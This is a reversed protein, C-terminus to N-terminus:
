RRWTAQRDLHRSNTLNTTERTALDVIYIDTQGANEWTMLFRTGDPAWAPATAKGTVLQEEGTGDTNMLWIGGGLLSDRSFLIQTGDPSWAPEGDIASGATLREVREDDLHVICINQQGDSTCGFAIRSDDPSWSPSHASEGGTTLVRLALTVAYNMTYLQRDLRSHSVIRLGDPSWAPEKLFAVEPLFWARPVQEEVFGTAAIHYIGLPVPGPIGGAPRPDVRSFLLGSGDPSWAPSASYNAGQRPSVIRIVDSGDENMAFLDGPFGELSDGTFGAHRSSVFVIAGQNAARATFEAAPLDGIMVSGRNTGPEPGITWKASARGTSNTTDSDPIISGGRPSVTWKTILGGQNVFEGDADVVQVSIKDILRTNIFQVQSDGSAVIAAFPLGTPQPDTSADNGCASSMSTTGVVLVALSRHKM